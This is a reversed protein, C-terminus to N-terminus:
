AISKSPWSATSNDAERIAETATIVEAATNNIYERWQLSPEMRGQLLFIIIRQWSEPHEARYEKNAFCM